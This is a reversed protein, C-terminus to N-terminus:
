GAHESAASRLRDVDRPSATLRVDSEVGASDVATAHARKPVRLVIHVQALPSASVRTTYAVSDAAFAKPLLAEKKAAPIALLATVYASLSAFGLHGFSLVGTNGVFVQVGLVMVVTVLTETVLQDRASSGGSAYFFGVGVLVAMLALNGGISPLARRLSQLAGM